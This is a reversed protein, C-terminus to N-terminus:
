ETPSVGSRIDDAVRNVIAALAQCRNRNSGWEVVNFAGAGDHDIILLIAGTADHAKAFRKADSIHLVKM